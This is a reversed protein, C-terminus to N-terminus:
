GRYFEPRDFPAFACLLASEFIGARDLRGRTLIGFTGERSRVDEAGSVHDIVAALSEGRLLREAIHDPLPLAPGAGLSERRGDTVCAWSQLFLGGHTGRFAGGELGLGFHPAFGGGSAAGHATRARRTAGDVLADLDLPTEAVGSHVEASWLLFGDFPIEDSPLHPALARAARRVAELKPARRSGVALRLPNSAGEAGVTEVGAHAVASPSM